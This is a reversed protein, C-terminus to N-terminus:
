LRYFHHAGIRAVVREPQAWMPLIKLSGPALYHNASGTPDPELKFLAEVAARFCDDWVKRDVGTRRPNLMKPVRPSGANWCSFQLRQLCVDGPTDPWRADAARNMIVYAVARKGLLSEGEAEGLITATLTMLDPWESPELTPDPTPVM